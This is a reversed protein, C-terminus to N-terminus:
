LRWYLENFNVFNLAARWLATTEARRESADAIVKLTAPLLPPYFSDPSEAWKFATSQGVM